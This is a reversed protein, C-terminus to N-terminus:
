RIFKFNETVFEISILEGPAKEPADEAARYSIVALTEKKIKGCGIQRDSM